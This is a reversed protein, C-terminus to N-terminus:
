EFVIYAVQETTHKSLSNNFADEAVYLKLAKTSLAPNGFLVAWSGEKGDMGSQSIAATSVSSLGTLPYAYPTASDGFGRVADKGLAAQYRVGDVMGTGTEIVIYGITENGRIKNPDLGVHKGVNFHTASIPDTSKAGRTWFASWSSDNYSMVQGVVVPKTYSNKYTQTEANWSGIGSATLTSNFKVAEMKVGQEAMTYVGENVAVVAVDMTIASLSGDARDLKLEFNSATVNRIRTVAPPQTSSTYIPTAIIVPSTYTKGLNVVTWGSNTVNNITTRVLDTSAPYVKINVTGSISDYNTTDNPIFTVPVATTGVALVTSPSDYSFAGAVSAKGGSLTASSVPQGLPVSAATPWSTVTPTVKAVVLTGSATGAFQPHNVSAIVAYSGANTPATPNADYTIVVPLGSPNTVTTVAKPSGDYTRSLNSLTVTAPIAALDLLVNRTILDDPLLQNKFTLIDARQGPTLSLSNNNISVYVTASGGAGLTGSTASLSVWTSAKSATWKLTESGTNTLTYSQSTPTFPGGYNGSFLLDSAEAVVLDNVPTVAYDPDYSGYFKVTDINWGPSVAANDTALLWRVRLTKGAYRSANSLSVITQVFGHSNGTWAYRGAIPSRYSSSITDTYANSVFEAGSNEKLIDFWDGGDISYELVGGDYGSELECNQWFSLKLDIVDAGIVIPPSELYKTSSYYPATAGISNSPTNSSTSVVDWLPTAGTSSYTTWGEPLSGSVDFNEVFFDIIPLSVRFASALTDEEFLSSGNNVHSAYLNYVGIAAGTLNFTVDVEEDSVYNVITGVIDPSGTKKLSIATDAQLLRGTITVQISANNEGQDPTIAIVRLKPTPEQITGSIFYQGLSGYSSYGSPNLNFPDGVGINKVHLYYTGMTLNTTISASTSNFPNASAVLTGASDYLEIYVDLNGGNTDNANKWSNVDLTVSGDGTDFTFVDVDDSKEIIGKNVPSSNAPDTQPTTSTIVTTGTITLPTATATTEGHDDARYTLKGAMIALDDERESQLSYDGKSWQTVNKGYGAGMIPAWSTDGNGHGLYYTNSGRGDHSLGLNHGMEHSSVEAFTDAAGDQIATWAPQYNSFYNANGFVNLYAVGGAGDHPCSQGNKDTVPTILLWGVKNKDGRYNIPDYTVDTTINVNYSSFDEAMRQWTQFMVTQEADSFTNLDNDSSWPACDWSAIGASANWAKGAVVAGNFDLYIHYPADPKSNYAPPSDIAVAARGVQPESTVSGGTDQSPDGDKLPIQEAKTTSTKSHGHSTDACASQSCKVGSCVSYIGGQNDVRLYEAADFEQFTLQHLWKMAKDKTPADLKQLKSKLEGAPLESITFPNGKGYVKQSSEGAFAVSATLGLYLSIVSIISFLPSKMPRNIQTSRILMLKDLIDSSLICPMNM